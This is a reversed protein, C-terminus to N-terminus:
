GLLYGSFIAEGSVLTITGASTYASLQVYDGAGMNLIASGSYGAWKGSPLNGPIRFRYSTGGGNYLIYVANYAVDGAGSSVSGTFTFLYRGNAPATFRGNSSNYGSGTNENVTAFVIVTDTSTISFTSNTKVAFYVQYPKIVRGSTDIAMYNTWSRAGSTESSYDFTFGGANFGMRSGGYEGRTTNDPKTNGVLYPGISAGLGVGVSGGAGDTDLYMGVMNSVAGVYTVFSTEPQTTGIGVYGNNKVVLANDTGRTDIIIDSTVYNTARNNWVAKIGGANLATNGTGDTTRFILRASNGATTNPNDLYMDINSSSSKRVHLIDSPSTTGIGVNGGGAFYSDGNGSIRTSYASGSYLDLNLGEAGGSGGFSALDKYIRLTNSAKYFQFGDNTSGSEDGIWFSGNRVGFHGDVQLKKYPSTTGIGVKSSQLLLQTYGEGIQLNGGDAAGELARNNNFYIRNNGGTFNLGASSGGIHLKQGPSTTGIGVNGSSNITLGTVLAGGLKTQFYLAGDGDGQLSGGIRGWNYVGGNNSFNIFPLDSNDAAQVHIGSTAIVSNSFTAAGTSSIVLRNAGANGDYIQFQNVDAGIGVGLYYDGVTTTLRLAANRARNNEVRLYATSTTASQYFRGEGTVDLKYSPNATGIGVQSADIYLKNNALLKSYGAGGADRLYVTPPEAISSNVTIGSEGTTQEVTLNGHTSTTGISLNGSANLTMAQTFSIANGATGSTSIRWFHTGSGQQYQTAYDSNQYIYSSGNYYNNNGMVTGGTTTGGFYSGYPYQSVVFPSEWASPTVGLGINTGDDYIVSNTATNSDSWKMLYSATGTGDVKTAIATTVTTAFNPDDGLAAALENLTDLTSPASDVISAIIATSTAYGNSSLYSSVRDNTYYLNTGEGIVSTTIGHSENLHRAFLTGDALLDGTVKTNAM